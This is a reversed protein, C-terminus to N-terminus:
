NHVCIMLHSLVIRHQSRQKAGQLWASQESDNIRWRGRSFRSLLVVFTMANRFLENAVVCRVVPETENPLLRSEMRRVPAPVINKQNELLWLGLVGASRRNQATDFLNESLKKLKTNFTARANTFPMPVIVSSTPVYPCAPANKRALGPKPPM